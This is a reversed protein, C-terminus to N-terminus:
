ILTESKNTAIYHYGQITACLLPAEHAVCLMFCRFICKLLKNCFHLSLCTLRQFLVNFFLWSLSYLTNLLEMCPLQLSKPWINQYFCFNLLYQFLAFLFMNICFILSYPGMNVCYLFVLRKLFVPSLSQHKQEASHPNSDLHNVRTNRTQNPGYKAVAGQLGFCPAMYLFQDGVHEEFFTDVIIFVKCTGYM